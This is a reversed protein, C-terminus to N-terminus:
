RSSKGAWIGAGFLALAVAVATPIYFKKNKWWVIKEPPCNRGNFVHLARILKPSLEYKKLEKNFLDRQYAYVDFTSRIQTSHLEEFLKLLVPTMSLRQVLKAYATTMKNEPQDFVPGEQETSPAFVPKLHDTSAYTTLSGLVSPLIFIILTKKM